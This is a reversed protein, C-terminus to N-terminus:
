QNSWETGKNLGYYASNYKVAEPEEEGFYKEIFDNISTFMKIIPDKLMYLFVCFIGFVIVDDITIPIM